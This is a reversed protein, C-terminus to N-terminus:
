CSPPGRRRDHPRRVELIADLKERTKGMFDAGAQLDKGVVPMEGNNSATRLATETYFLYQKLGEALTTSSSRSATSSRRCGTPCCRGRAAHRLLRGHPGRRRRAHQHDHPAGNVLTNSVYVPFDACLVEDDGDCAGGNTVSTSAVASSTPSRRPAPRGQRRRQCRLGRPLQRTTRLQRTSASRASTPASTPTTPTSRSASTSRRSPQTSGPTTSRARAHRGRHAAAPPAAQRHWEGRARARWRREGWWSRAEGFELSVPQSVGYEREWTLDTAAPREGDEVLGFDITSGNGLSNQAM